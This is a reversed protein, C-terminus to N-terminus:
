IKFIVSKLYGMKCRQPPFVPPFVSVLFKRDAGFNLVREKHMNM